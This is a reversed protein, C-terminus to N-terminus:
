KDEENSSISADDLDLISSDKNLKLYKEFKNFMTRINADIKSFNTEIICGGNEINKDLEINLNNLNNNKAILEEKIKDAYEFDRKSVKITIKENEVTYKIAKEIVNKVVMPNQEIKENVIIQAILYTLKVLYDENIKTMKLRFDLLDQIIQKYSSITNELDQKKEEYATKIGQENGLKYATEYALKELSSIGEKIGEKILNQIKINEAEDIRMQSLIIDDPKFNQDRVSLDKSFSKKIQKYSPMSSAENLSPPKFEKIDTTKNFDKNNTKENNTSM